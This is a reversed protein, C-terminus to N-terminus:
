AGQRDLKLVKTHTHTPPSNVTLKKSRKPVFHAGFCFVIGLFQAFHNIKKKHFFINKKSFKTCFNNKKGLILHLSVTFCSKKYANSLVKYMKKTRFFKHQSNTCKRHKTKQTCSLQVSIFNKKYKFFVQVNEKNSFVQASLKYMKQTKNKTHLFTTCFHLKKQIQFFSTCKRQEFFSTSLTQVNETNQKKHALFNYLFSTKKTNSFFKYM